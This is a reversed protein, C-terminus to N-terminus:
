IYATVRCFGEYNRVKPRQEQNDINGIFNFVIPLKDLTKSIIEAEYTYSFKDHAMFDIHLKEKIFYKTKHYILKKYYNTFDNNNEVKFTMPFSAHFDGIVGNYEYEAYKRVNSIIRVPVDLVKFMKACCTVAIYLALAEIVENYKFKENYYNSIDYEM